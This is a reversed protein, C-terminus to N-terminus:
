WDFKRGGCSPAFSGNMSGRYLDKIVKGEIITHEIISKAHCPIVRGYWIGQGEKYVIVNGAFRHGGTHSSLFVGVGDNYRTEPDLGKEKLVKDFEDKLLPGTVGCRKDRKRHSCIVIVARYPVKEIPFNNDLYVDDKSLFANYFDAALKTTVNKILINDPFLLVDNGKSCLSDNETNQRSSNTIILRTHDTNEHEEMQSQLGNISKKEKLKVNNVVKHLSSALSGCEDEINTEWDGKGTSILVHKIYPKVTNELPSEYDIKLYSPYSAHSACPDLCNLCPDEEDKQSELRQLEDFTILEHQSPVTQLLAATKADPFESVPPANSTDTIPSSLKHIDENPSTTPPVSRPSPIVLSIVNLIKSGIRRIPKEM